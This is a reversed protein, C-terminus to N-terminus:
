FGRKIIGLTKNKIRRDTEKWVIEQDSQWMTAGTKHYEWFKAGQLFAIKLKSKNAM